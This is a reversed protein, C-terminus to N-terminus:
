LSVQCLYDRWCVVHGAVPQLRQEELGGASCGLIVLYLEMAVICILVYTEM